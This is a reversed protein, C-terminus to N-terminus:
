LNKLQVKPTKIGLLYADINPKRYARMFVFM